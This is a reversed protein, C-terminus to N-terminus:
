CLTKNDITLEVYIAGQAPSINREINMLMMDTQTLDEDSKGIERLMNYPMLIVAAGGDVLMRTVPKGNVFGKLFLAKLQQRKEDDLKESIAQTPEMTLQDM